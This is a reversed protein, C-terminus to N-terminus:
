AATRAVDLEGTVAATILAQRHERLLDIQRTLATITSRVQNQRSELRRALDEWRRRDHPLGVLFNKMDGLGLTPQASDGSTALRAQDAFLDSEFFFRILTRPVDSQLQVRALARNLNCGELEPGVEASRGLTGVVSVVLDRTRVITRQYELSQRPPIRAVADFDVTDDRLDTIRLMPVGDVDHEPVLVGYALPAALLHKLRVGSRPDLETSLESRWIERLLDIMRNKKNILADIRATEADLFDAIRRQEDLPPLAMPIEGFDEINIRPTRVNGQDSSGIGRLRATMQGIFWSSRFLHHVFRVDVGGTMRLVVYDPSVIGAKPAVGIAGQFARMRNLVVDGASCRKYNTLDDARAEDETLTERPVVGHHISVALLQLGESGTREDVVRYLYKARVRRWRPPFAM